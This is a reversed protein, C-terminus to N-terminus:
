TNNKKRMNPHEAILSRAFAYALSGASTEEIIYPARQLSLSVKFSSLKRASSTAHLNCAREMARECLCEEAKYTPMLPASEMEQM